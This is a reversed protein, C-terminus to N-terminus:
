LLRVLLLIVVKDQIYQIPASAVAYRPCIQNKYHEIQEKSLSSLDSGEKGVCPSCALAHLPSENSMKRSHYLGSVCEIKKILM